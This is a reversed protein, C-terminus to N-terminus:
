HTVVVKGASVGAKLRQMATPIQDLGHGAIIPDPAATYSGAALAAPLFDAYIAPGVENSELSGGWIASVQVQKRRATRQQLRVFPAPLSAAVRKSGTTRAAIELAPKLSGNGNALVGALPATGIAAILEEVADKDHYDVAM